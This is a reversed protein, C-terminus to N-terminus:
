QIKELRSFDITGLFGHRVECEKLNEKNEKCDEKLNDIRISNTLIAEAMEQTARQNKDSNIIITKNISIQSETLGQMADKLSGFETKLVPIDRSNNDAKSAINYIVPAFFSGVMFMLITAAGLKKQENSM